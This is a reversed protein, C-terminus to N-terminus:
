PSGSIALNMAWTWLSNPLPLLLLLGASGNRDAAVSAGLVASEACDVDDDDDSQLEMQPPEDVECDDAVGDSWRDDWEGKEGKFSM